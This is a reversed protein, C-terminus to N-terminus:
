RTQSVWHPFLDRSYGDQSGQPQVTLAALASEADATSPVNPPARTAIHVTAPLAASLWATAFILVLYKMNTPHYM